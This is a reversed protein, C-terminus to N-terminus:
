VLDFIYKLFKKNNKDFYKFKHRFFKFFTFKIFIEFLKLMINFFNFQIININIM